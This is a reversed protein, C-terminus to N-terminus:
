TKSFPSYPPWVPGLGLSERREAEWSTVLRTLAFAGLAYGLGALVDVLYHWRLFMTAGMINAGAFAVLPWTFRFPRLTRHQWSFLALFAPVATHISPFIDKKAGGSEVVSLQLDYWFGSPLPTQFRDALAIFPGYGPVLRYTLHGLAFILIVGFTFEAQLRPRRSFFVMPLVHAALLAFYGVYFFSFWETLGSSAFREWALAPEFGFAWEDWALLEQDLSRPNMQPLAVRFGFYSSELTGIATLRYLIAEIAHGNRYSEALIRSRVTLMSLTYVALLSTMTALAEQQAPVKAGALVFVVLLVHYALLVWDQIALGRIATRFRTASRAAQAVERFYSATEGSGSM